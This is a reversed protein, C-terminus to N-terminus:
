SGADHKGEKQRKREQYKALLLGAQRGHGYGWHWGMAFSIVAVMIFLVYVMKM